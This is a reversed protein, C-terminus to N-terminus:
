DATLTPPNPLCSLGTVYAVSPSSSSTDTPYEATATTTVTATFTSSGCAVPVTVTTVSSGSPTVTLSGSPGHQGSAPAWSLTYSGISALPLAEGDAYATPATISVNATSGAALAAVAVFALVFGALIKRM